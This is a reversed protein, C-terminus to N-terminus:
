NGSFSIKDFLLAPSRFSSHIWPDNGVEILNMLLDKLNGSINMEGVAKTRKGNEILWGAVGLSYDGTTGNANGGLFETVLIGKDLDKEIASGDRKGLGFELNSTGGTTPEMDLKRGYYDDIYYNNLVGNTIVPMPKTAFGDDDYIKSGLGRVIHPNDMISLLESAINEGKLGDLFSTKQQIASGRLAGLIRWLIGGASRNEFLMPYLGTEVKERGISDQARVLAEATTTPVDVLDNLHRARYYGWGEAKKDNEDALSISAGHVVSSGEREGEFGNSKLIRSYYQSDSFSSSISITRKDKGKLEDVLAKANAIRTEPTLKELSADYLDLEKQTQGKYRDPNPLKRFKDEELYKTMDVANEIFKSLAEKKIDNTSHSSYRGTAYIEIWLSQSTSETLKEIADDRYEVSVDRSQSFGISTEDAGKAKAIKEALYLTQKESNKIM